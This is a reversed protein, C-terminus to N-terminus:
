RYNVFLIRRSSFRQQYNPHFRQASWVTRTTILVLQDRFKVGWFYYTKRTKGGVELMTM